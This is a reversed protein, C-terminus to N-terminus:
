TGKQVRMTRTKPIARSITAAPSNPSITEVTKRQCFGRGSAIGSVQRSSGVREDAPVM